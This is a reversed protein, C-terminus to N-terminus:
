GWDGYCALGRGHRRKGRSVAAPHAARAPQAAAPQLAGPSRARGPRAAAPARGDAAGRAAPGGAARRQLEPDPDQVAALPDSAPPGGAVPRLRHSPSCDTTHSRHLIVHHTLPM